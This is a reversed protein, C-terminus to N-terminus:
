WQHFKYGLSRCVDQRLSQPPYDVALTDRHEGSLRVTSEDKGASHGCLLVVDESRRMAGSWLLIPKKCACFCRVHDKSPVLYLLNSSSHSCFPARYHSNACVLRVHPEVRQSPLPDQDGRVAQLTGPAALYSEMVTLGRKTRSREPPSLLPRPLEM